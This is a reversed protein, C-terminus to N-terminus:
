IAEEYGCQGVMCGQPICLQFLGIPGQAIEYGPFREVLGHQNGDIDKNWHVVVLLGELIALHVMASIPVTSLWGEKSGWTKHNELMTTDVM